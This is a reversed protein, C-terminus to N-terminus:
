TALQQVWRSSPLDNGVERVRGVRECNNLRLILLDASKTYSLCTRRFIKFNFPQDPLLHLIPLSRPYAVSFLPASFYQRSILLNIEM